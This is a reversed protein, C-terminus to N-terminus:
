EYWVLLPGYFRRRIIIIIIIQALGTGIKAM